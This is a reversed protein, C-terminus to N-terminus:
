GEKPILPCNQKHKATIADLEDAYSPRRNRTMWGPDLFDKVEFFIMGFFLISVYKIGGVGGFAFGFGMLLFVATSIVANQRTARACRGRSPKHPGFISKKIPMIM